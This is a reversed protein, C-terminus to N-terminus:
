LAPKTDLRRIEFTRSCLRTRVRSGYRLQFSNKIQGLAEAVCRALNFEANFLVDIAIFLETHANRATRDDKNGNPLCIAIFGRDHNVAVGALDNFREVSQCDGAANVM